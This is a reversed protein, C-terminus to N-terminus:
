SEANARTDPVTTDGDDEGERTRAEYQQQLEAKREATLRVPALRRILWILIDDFWNRMQESTAM